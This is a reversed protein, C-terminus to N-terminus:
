LDCVLVYVQECQASAVESHASILSKSQSFFSQQYRETTSVTLAETFCLLSNQPTIVESVTVWVVPCDGSVFGLQHM